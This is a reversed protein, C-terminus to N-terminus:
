AAEAPYRESKDTVHIPATITMGKRADTLWFAQRPPEFDFNSIFSYEDYGKLNGNIVMGKVFALQHWHGMIMYDYPRRVAQQRKRKRADGIMLPSLLGSIGGGGRFQDGHTLLYRTQYASYTLDASESVEVTVRKDGSFERALMYGLLYDFNDQPRNKATPKMTNRGHNGVVCPVYVRGFDDALMKIGAALRPTWHILSEIITAENTNRLEEHINGSFIDGGLPLILGDYDIGKIYDRSLRLVNEFFNRLRKEAIARSYENVYQVQAAYVVEDLHLDSLFATAIAKDPKSPAKRTWEPPERRVSTVSQIFSDLAAQKNLEETLSEVKRRLEAAERRDQKEAIQQEIIVQPEKPPLPDVFPKGARYERVAGQKVTGVIEAIRFNSLPRGREDQQACLEMIQEYEARSIRTGAM